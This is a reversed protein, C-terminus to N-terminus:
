IIKENELISLIDKVRNRYTHHKHCYEYGAKRIKEREEDHTLYYDIKEKLGQWDNYQYPIFHKYYQFEKELGKVKPHIMFAGRGTMEYVRNSWYYPSHVTDGIVIKLTALVDNLAEHRLNGDQGFHQFRDGYTKKLWSVLQARYNWAAWNDITGIFGIESKINPNIKGPKVLEHIGQRVCYHKIGAEKWKEENGGDTTIVIDANFHPEQFIKPERKYGWYLDFMWCVSPIRKEKLFEIAPQNVPFNFKSFFLVDHSSVMQRIDDVGTTRADVRTVHHGEKELAWAIEPEGVSVKAFNGYYLFRTSKQKINKLTTRM